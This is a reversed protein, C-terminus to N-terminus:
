YAGPLEYINYEYAVPLDDEYGLSMELDRNNSQFHFQVSLSDVCQIYNNHNSKAM